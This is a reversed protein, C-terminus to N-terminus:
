NVTPKTVFTHRYASTVQRHTQKNVQMALGKNISIKTNNTKDRQQNGYSKKVNACVNIEILMLIHM